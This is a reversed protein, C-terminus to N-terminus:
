EFHVGEISYRFGIEEPTSGYRKTLPFYRIAYHGEHGFVRDALVGVVSEGDFRSSQSEPVRWWFIARDCLNAIEQAGANSKLTPMEHESNTKNTHCVLHVTVQRKKAFDVLKNTVNTQRQWKDDSDRGAVLKMLNDVVFVRCGYRRWALEFNQLLLDETMMERTDILFLKDRVYDDIRPEWDLRVTPYETGTRHSYQRETGEYGALHVYM